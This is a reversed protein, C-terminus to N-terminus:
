GKRKLLQRRRILGFLGLASAFLPIAAPVPVASVEPASFNSIVATGAGFGSDETAVRFGFIDGAAVLFSEVGSQGSLTDDTLQTFVGNLVWGFPDYSASGDLTTYDWDFSVSGAAVAAITFDTVAAQSSYDDRGTLAVSSPANITDILGGNLDQTWNGTAYSGDFGGLTAANSTAAFMFFCIFLYKKMEEGIHLRYENGSFCACSNAENRGLIWLILACFLGAIIFWQFYLAKNTIVFCFGFVM